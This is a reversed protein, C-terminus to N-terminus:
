DKLRLKIGTTTLIFAFHEDLFETIAKTDYMTFTEEKQKNDLVKHANLIEMIRESPKM